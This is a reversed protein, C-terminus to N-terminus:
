HKKIEKSVHNEQRNIQKQEAKTIHGHNDAADKKEENHIAKDQSHLKAAESKSMQHDAVKNNIRANQNQLRKNVEAKRPHNNANAAPAAPAAQAQAPAQAFVSVSALSFAVVSAALVLKNTKM